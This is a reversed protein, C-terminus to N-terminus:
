IFQFILGGKSRHKELDNILSYTQNKFNKEKIFKAELKSCPPPPEGTTKKVNSLFYQSNFHESKEQIGM